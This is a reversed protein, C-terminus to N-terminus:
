FLEVEPDSFAKAGEYCSGNLLLFAPILKKM